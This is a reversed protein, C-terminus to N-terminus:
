LWIFFQAVLEQRTNLYFYLGVNAQTPALGMAVGSVQKQLKSKFVKKLFLLEKFKIESLGEVTETNEFLTNTCIDITKELPMNTFVSDVDLSAMFFESDQEASEEYFNFSGKVRYKNSTLFKLNPVRFKALKYTSTNITSLIPLFSSFDNVIDKHGKCLAYMIGPRTGVPKLSWRTEQSLCLLSKLINGAWNEVWFGM